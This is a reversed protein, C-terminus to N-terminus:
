MGYQAVLRDHEEELRKWNLDAKELWTAISSSTMGSSSTMSTSTDLMGTDSTDACGEQSLQCSAPHLVASPIDVVHLLKQMGEATVKHASALHGQLDLLGQCEDQCLPCLLRNDKSEPLSRSGSPTTAVPGRAPKDPPLNTEASTSSAATESECM